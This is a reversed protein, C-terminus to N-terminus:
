LGTQLTTFNIPAGTVKDIGNGVVIVGYDDTGYEKVVFQCTGKFNKILATTWKRNLHADFHPNYRMVDELSMVAVMGSDACFTGLVEGNDSNFVTCSWDGYLTDRSICHEIGIDEMCDGCGCEVWDDRDTDSRLIYCPDTIIIDGDFHFPESDQFSINSYYLQFLQDMERSIDNKIKMLMDLTHMKQEPTKCNKILQDCGEGIYFTAFHLDCDKEVDKMILESSDHDFGIAILKNRVANKVEQIKNHREQEKAEVWEKTM